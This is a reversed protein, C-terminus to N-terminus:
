WTCFCVFSFVMLFHFWLLYQKTLYFILIVFEAYINIILNMIVM